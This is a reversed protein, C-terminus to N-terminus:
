DASLGSFVSPPGSAAPPGDLGKVQSEMWAVPPISAYNDQMGPPPPPEPEPGPQSCVSAYGGKGTITLAELM